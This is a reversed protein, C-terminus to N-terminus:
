VKRNLLYVLNRNVYPFCDTMSVLFLCYSIVWGSTRNSL